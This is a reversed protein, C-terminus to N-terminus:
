VGAGCSWDITGKMWFHAVAEGAEKAMTDPTSGGATEPKKLKKIGMMTRQSDWYWPAKVCLRNSRATTPRYKANKTSDCNTTNVSM